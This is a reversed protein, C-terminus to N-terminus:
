STEFKYTASAAGQHSTKWTCSIILLYFSWNIKPYFEFDIRLSKTYSILEKIKLLSLNTLTSELVTFDIKGYIKWSYMISVFILGSKNENEYYYIHM